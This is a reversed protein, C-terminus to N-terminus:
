WLISIDPMRSHALSTYFADDTCSIYLFVSLCVRIPGACEHSSLLLNLIWLSLTCVFLRRCLGNVYSVQEALLTGDVRGRVDGGGQRSAETVKDTGKVALAAKERDTRSTMAQSLRLPSLWVFRCCCWLRKEDEPSLM